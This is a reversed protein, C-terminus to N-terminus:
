DPTLGRGSTQEFTKAVNDSLRSLVKTYDKWHPM